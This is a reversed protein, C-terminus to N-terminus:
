SEWKSTNIEIKKMFIILSFWFSYVYIFIFHLLFVIQNM